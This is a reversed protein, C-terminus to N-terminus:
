QVITNSARADAWKAIFRHPGRGDDLLNAELSEATIPSVVRRVDSPDWRRAISGDRGLGPVSMLSSTHGSDDAEASTESASREVTHQLAGGDLHGWRSREDFGLGNALNWKVIRIEFLLM